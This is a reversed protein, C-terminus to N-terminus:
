RRRARASTWSKGSEKAQLASPTKLWYPFPLDTLDESREVLRWAPQPLGLKQLTQAFAIKSQVRAFAQADALATHVNSSLLPRASALLWAQEHTPLVVDIGRRAVVQELTQLYGLPDAGSPPCRHVRRMWRSFRDLCM